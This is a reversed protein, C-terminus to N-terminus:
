ERSKKLLYEILPRFKEPMVSEGFEVTKTNGGAEITIRYQYQDPISSGSDQAQQYKFFDSQDILKELNGLEQGSLDRSDIEVNTAIGAFGGSREFQIHFPKEISV